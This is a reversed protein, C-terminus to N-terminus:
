IGGNEQTDGIVLLFVAGTVMAAGLWGWLTFQENWWLYAAVCGVLPELNVIVAAPTPNVSRMGIGYCMYPLYTVLIFLPLTQLCIFASAARLGSFPLLLLMGGLMAYSYITIPSYVNRWRFNWPFHLAYFIASGLGCIIGLWSLRSDSASGAAVLIAGCMALAISAVARRSIAHNLFFFSRLAVWVPATYLLIVALAAGSERVAFQYSINLMGLGLTGFLLLKPVDAKVVRWENRIVAHLGFCLSGVLCRMFAIEQSSLGLSLFYRSVPGYMCWLFAAIALLAYGAYPRRACSFSGASHANM